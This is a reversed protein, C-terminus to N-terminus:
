HHRSESPTSDAAPYLLDAVGYLRVLSQLPAPTNLFVLNAGRKLAARRWALLAAVASSDVLPVASLDVETQGAAIAALGAPYVASMTSSTMPSSPQFM